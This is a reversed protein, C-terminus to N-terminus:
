SVEVRTEGLGTKSSAYVNYSETYGTNNSFDITDVLTFGGTFGGVTFSCEGLRVPLAYWIRQGEAANVTFTLDKTSSLRKVFGLIFASDLTEPTEAVGYYVGNLFRISVSATDENDREDTVRLTFTMDSSVDSESWQKLSLHVIEGNMTQTKPVKNLSWRVTVPLAWGIEMTSHDITISTIKIGTYELDARLDIIDKQIKSIEESSFIETAIEQKDADTWYDVGKVPTYGDVGDKGHLPPHAAVYADLIRSIDATTLAEAMLQNVLGQLKALATNDTKGPDAGYCLISPECVIKAATTTRLSGTYVGVYVAHTNALIPVNVTNGTFEVEEVSSKNGKFWVFRATKKSEAEWEEDFLFTLTYDNNGCIIKTNSPATAVKNKVTVDINM